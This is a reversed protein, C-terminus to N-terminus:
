SGRPLGRRLAPLPNAFVCLQDAALAACLSISFNSLMASADGPSASRGCASQDFALLPM